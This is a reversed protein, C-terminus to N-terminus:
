PAPSSDEGAARRAQQRRRYLLYVLLSSLAFAAKLTISIWFMPSTPEQISAGLLTTLVMGPLLGLTGALLNQFFPTRTAGLYMSVVDGPLCNIIRFFFCLFFSSGQQKDLISAFKPYKEVLKGIAEIGSFRGIWYPITLVILLGLLNVLLAIPTPFLHGSALELAVLPFFITASKLAFLLLLTCVALGLNDSTHNLIAEMTDDPSLLLCLFAGAICVAPLLEKLLTHANVKHKKM